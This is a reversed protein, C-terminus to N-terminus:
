LVLYRLHSFKRRRFNEACKESFIFLYFWFLLTGPERGGRERVGTGERGAEERGAGSELREMESAGGSGPQLLEAPEVGGGGVVRYVASNSRVRENLVFM